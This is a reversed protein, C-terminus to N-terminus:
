IRDTLFASIKCMSFNESHGEIDYIRTYKTGVHVQHQVARLNLIIAIFLTQGALTLPV